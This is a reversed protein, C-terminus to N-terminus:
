RNLTCRVGWGKSKANASGVSMLNAFAYACSVGTRVKAKRPAGRGSKPSSPQDDTDEDMKESKPSSEVDEDEDIKDDPDEGDSEDTESSEDDYSPKKRRKVRRPQKNIPSSKRKRTGNTGRPKRPKPAAKMAKTQEDLLQLKEEPLYVTRLIKAAVESSPLPKFVDGPLQIKGPYANTTWSNRMAKLRIRHLLLESVAYLNESYHHEELRVGKVRQTIYTILHINDSTLVTDIYLDIYKVTDQLSEPELSFDPHLALLYLLRPVMQEYSLIRLDRPLRRLSTLVYARATLTIDKDPDLATMFLVTHYRPDIKRQFLLQIIKHLFGMRVQFSPDQILLALNVFHPNIAQSYIQVTALRLLSLCAQLRLRAKTHAHDAQDAKVSGMNSLIAFLMKIVPRAIDLASDRTAHAMCRNVCIKLALIKLRADLPAKENEDWEEDEDIEDPSSSLVHKLLFGIITESQEEFADPSSKAAEALACLQGELRVNPDHIDLAKTIEEVLEQCKSSAGSSFALIRTGFKAYKRHGAKAFRAAKEVLRKVGSPDARTASSLAQLSIGILPVNGEESLAKIFEPIHTKLMAPCYKCIRELIFEAKAAGEPDNESFRQIRKSLSPISSHNIIYFSARRFLDNMTESISSAAQEVRRTFETTAKVLAKMDTQPDLAISLLKYLRSENLKAFNRLDEAAKVRDPFRTSLQTVIANFKKTVEEENNDVIGGNYEKCAELFRGEMTPQPANITSLSVLAQMARMDLHRMVVLLQDSWQAEDEGKSPLPLIYKLIAREVWMRTETLKEISHLIEEPIWAFHDIATPEGAEIEPFALRYLKGIATLAEQRVSPKKDLIRQALEKLQDTTVNHLATEYDMHSYIRCAAARVKDDTDLMKSRLVEAVEHRLSSHHGLMGKSAEIFTVRVGASKDRTRTIWSKWVQPYKQALEDGGQESFLEGMTQTALSRFNPDEATLEEGLQPIVNNLLAPCSKNIQVILNHAKALDGTDDESNHQVIIDAFYQAVLSQLRDSTAKCVDVGLRFTPHDMRANKPTFQALIIDVVSSPIAPSEEILSVLIDSMYLEVKKPLDLKVLDFLDRFIDATLDDGNPLDPVLCVSKITALSELLYIYENYWPSDEGKLGTVLQRFFFQFMDKLELATYPADPATLRLLDAMCCAAYAKVGKDRHLLISKDILHSKISSLSDKNINEQGIGCLEAHLVKMKKLLADSSQTKVLLKDKFKLSYLASGTQTQTAM